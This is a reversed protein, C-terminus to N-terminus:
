MPLSGAYSSGSINLGPFLQRGSLYRPQPLSIMANHVTLVNAGYNNAHKYEHTCHVHM